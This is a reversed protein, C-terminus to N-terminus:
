DAYRLVTIKGVDFMGFLTLVKGDRTLYPLGISTPVEEEKWTKGGDATHLALMKSKGGGALGLVVVGNEADLFRVAVSSTDYPVPKLGGYRDLGLDLPSWSQGGDRTVHLVGKSDFLYGEDPTRLSIALVRNTVGVDQPLALEGWTTGGDTTSSLKGVGLIWGTRSDVFSVRCSIGGAM